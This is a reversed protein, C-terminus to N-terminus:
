IKVQYQENDAVDNLKELNFREMDFRQIASKSVSLRQRVEVIV